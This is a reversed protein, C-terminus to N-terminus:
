PANLVESEADAYGEKPVCYAQITRWDRPIQLLFTKNESVGTMRYGKDRVGTRIVIVQGGSVPRGDDITVVEGSVVPPNLVCQKFRTARGTIV